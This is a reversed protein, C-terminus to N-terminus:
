ARGRLWAPQPPTQEQELVVTTGDPSTQLFVRDCTKLMMWFGHGLTGTSSFGRELTARHLREMAIGTGRDRIRVQVRGPQHGIVAEGSGGGHVVANMSAEGVGTVFDQWREADLGAAIAADVTRRRVARLTAVSLAIPEGTIQEALPAPLDDPTDCLRLRGESVSFLIDRLFTRTQEQSARLAHEATKRESVDRSSCVLRDPRGAEGPVRRTRTEQWLYTGDKKLRRWEVLPTAGGALAAQHADRRLPERDDAHAFAYAVNGILEAPLFGTLREVSPSVYLFRGDADHLSVIDDMADALLRYATESEGLARRAEDREAEFAQRAAETRRQESVETVIASLGLLPLPAGQKGNDSAAPRVPYYSTLWTRRVGPARPTEGVVEVNELPEGTALVRRLAAAVDLSQDPLVDQVTRGLHAEAPVGNIEALAANVRRYRLEPDFFAFGVPARALLTDLLASDLAAAAADPTM